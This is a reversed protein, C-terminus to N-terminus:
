TQRIGTGPRAAGMLRHLAVARLARKARWTKAATSAKPNFDRM